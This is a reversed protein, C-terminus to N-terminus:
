DATSYYSDWKGRSGFDVNTQWEGRTLNHKIKGEIHGADDGVFQLVASMEPGPDGAGVAGMYTVWEIQFTSGRRAYTKVHVWPVREMSGRSGKDIEYEFGGQIIM